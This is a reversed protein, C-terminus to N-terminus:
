IPTDSAKSSKTSKKRRAKRSTSGDDSWEEDDHIVIKKYNKVDAHILRLWSVGAKDSFSLNSLEQDCTSLIKRAVLILGMPLWNKIAYFQPRDLNKEESAQKIAAELNPDVAEGSNFKQLAAPIDKLAPLKGKHLNRFIREVKTGTSTKVLQDKAVTAQAQMAVTVLKVLKKDKEDPDDSDKDSEDSQLWSSKKSRRRKKARDASEQESESGGGLSFTDDLKSL